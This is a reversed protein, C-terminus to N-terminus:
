PKIFTINIFYCFVYVYCIFIRGTDRRNAEPVQQTSKVMPTINENEATQITRLKTVTSKNIEM